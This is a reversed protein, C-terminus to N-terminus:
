ARPGLIFVLYQSLLHEFMPSRIPGSNRFEQGSSDPFLTALSPVVVQVGVDFLYFPGLPFVRHNDLQMGFHAVLPTVNGLM